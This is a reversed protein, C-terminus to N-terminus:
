GVLDAAVLALEAARQQVANVQVNFHGAQGRLVQQVRRRAFVCRGDGGATQGCPLPCQRTLAAGISCQLALGDIRLGPQAIRCRGQQLFGGGFEAPASAAGVAAEFDGARNGIQGAAVGDFGQMHGFGHM